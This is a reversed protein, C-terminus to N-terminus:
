TTTTINYLADNNNSRRWNILLGDYSLLVGAGYNKEPYVYGSFSYRGGSNIIIDFKTYHGDTVLDTIFKQIKLLVTNYTISSIDAIGRVYKVDDVIDINDLTNNIAAIAAARAEAEATIDGALATDAATRATAEATIDGALSTDAAARATVEAELDADLQSVESALASIVANKLNQFTIKKTQGNLNYVLISDNNITTGEALESIKITDIEM